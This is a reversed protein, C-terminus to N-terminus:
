KKCTQHKIKQKPLKQSKLVNKSLKLSKKLRKRRIMKSLLKVSPQNIDTKAKVETDDYKEKKPKKAKQPKAAKTSKTAKNSKNLKNAKDAKPTEKVSENNVSDNKKFFNLGVAFANGSYCTLSSAIITSIILTKFTKKM